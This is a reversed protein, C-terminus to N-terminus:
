QVFNLLINKNWKQGASGLKSYEKARMIAATFLGTIPKRLFGCKIM